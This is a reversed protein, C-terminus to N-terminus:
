KTMDAAVDERCTLPGARRIRLGNRGDHDGDAFVLVVKSWPQAREGGLGDELKVLDALVRRRDEPKLKEAALGVGLKPLRTPEKWSDRRQPRM